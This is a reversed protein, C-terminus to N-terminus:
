AAGIDRRHQEALRRIDELDYLRAGSVGDMDHHPTIKGLAVWRNFTARSVGFTKAAQASGILTPKRVQVVFVGVPSGRLDVRGCRM